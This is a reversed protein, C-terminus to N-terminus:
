ITGLELSTPYQISKPAFEFPFIILTYLGSILDQTLSVSAVLSSATAGKMPELPLQHISLRSVPTDAEPLLGIIPSFLLQHINSGANFSYASVPAVAYPLVAYSYATSCPYVPVSSSKPLISASTGLATLSALCAM